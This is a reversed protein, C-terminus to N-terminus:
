PKKLKASPCYVMNIAETFKKLRPNSDTKELISMIPYVRANEGTKSTIIVEPIRKFGSGSNIITIGVMRGDVLIPEVDGNYLGSDRDKIEVMTDSGYRYGINEVFFGGLVIDYNKDDSSIGVSSDDPIINVSPFPSNAWSQHNTLVAVLEGTFPHVVPVPTGVYGKIYVSPYHRFPKKNGQYYYNYGPNRVVCINPIGQEFNNQAEKDTSKLSVAAVSANYGDPYTEIYPNLALGLRELGPTIKLPNKM